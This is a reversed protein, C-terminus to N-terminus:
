RLRDIQSLMWDIADEGARPSLHDLPTAVDRVDQRKEHLWETVMDAVINRAEQQEDTM